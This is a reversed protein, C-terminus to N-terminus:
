FNTQDSIIFKITIELINIIILSTKYIKKYYTHVLHTLNICLLTKHPLVRHIELQYPHPLATQRAIYHLVPTFVEDKKGGQGM